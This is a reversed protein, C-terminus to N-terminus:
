WEEEVYIPKKENLIEKQIKLREQNARELKVLADNLFIKYINQNERKHVSEIAEKLYELREKEDKIIGAFKHLLIDREKHKPNIAKYM